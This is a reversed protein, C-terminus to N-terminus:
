RDSICRAQVADCERLTPSQLLTHPHFAIVARQIFRHDHRKAAVVEADPAVAALRQLRRQRPEPGLPDIHQGPRRPPRRQGPGVRGIRSEQVADDDHAAVMVRVAQHLRQPPYLFGKAALTM